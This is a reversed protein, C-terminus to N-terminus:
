RVSLLVLLKIEALFSPVVKDDLLVFKYGWLVIIEIKVVMVNEKKKKKYDDKNFNVVGNIYYM